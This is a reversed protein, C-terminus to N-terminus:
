FCTLNFSTVLFGLKKGPKGNRNNNNGEICLVTIRQYMSNRYLMHHPNKFKVYISIYKFVM